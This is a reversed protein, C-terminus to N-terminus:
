SNQTSCTLGYYPMLNLPSLGHSPTLILPPLLKIMNETTLKNVHPQTFGLTMPWILRNLSDFRLYKNLSNIGKRASILSSQMLLSQRSLPLPAPLRPRVYPTLETLQHLTLRSEEALQVDSDTTNLLVSSAECSTQSRLQVARRGVAARLPSMDCACRMVSTKVFVSLWSNGFLLFAKHHSGGPGKLNFFFRNVSLYTLVASSRVIM